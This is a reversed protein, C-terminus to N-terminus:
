RTLQNFYITWYDRNFNVKANCGICLTILNEPNCNAKDYDIHHIAHARDGQKEGCLQCIYNDRERISIRLSRTWDTTYPEFSKGGQWNPHKEATMEPRKKGKNWGIHGKKFRQPLNKAWPAPLNKNWSVQGKKFPSIPINGKKFETKPHIGKLFQGLRNRKM